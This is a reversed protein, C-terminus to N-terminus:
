GVEPLSRPGLADAFPRSARAFNALEEILYQPPMLGTGGSAVTIDRREVAIERAHRALRTQASIDGQESRFLDRFFSRFEGNNERAGKEYTRPEKGVVVGETRPVAKLADDMRKLRDIDSALKRVEAEHTSFKGELDKRTTEDSDPRLSQLAANTRDFEMQADALDTQLEELTKISM